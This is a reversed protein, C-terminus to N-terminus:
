MGVAVPQPRRLVETVGWVILGQGLAYSAMIIEDAAWVSVAPVFRDIAILSDSILFLAGGVAITPTTMTASTAMAGIVVGYLVVAPYLAGMDQRSLLAIGAVLWVLYVLAWWPPRRRTRLRRLFLVVYAAQALMFCLIGIAFPVGGPVMLVVDGLWSFLIAVLATVAATSLRHISWLLALALILMLFPKTALSLWEVDLALASIHVVAIAPFAAFLATAATSRRVTTM